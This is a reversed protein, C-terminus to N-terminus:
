LILLNRDTLSMFSKVKGNILAVTDEIRIGYEGAVYVGPEDSFVMGDTLTMAGKISLSPMEHINLGIGHGLSHTFLEGYGNEALYNRAIADAEIGTMGSVLQEKVLEHAKLVTAYAKKFEEHKGDDGFLFTRTIDSCYGNVKCGFDILIEDGFCLKTNGTEHHPVAAHAGFAVITAFSTGDAGFKRMQYELLAAVEAETMGEQILPLIALFAKEAIACAKEINELEWENKTIMVEVFQKDINVMKVGAKELAAYEAHSMHNFSVGVSEYGALREMIEAQKILAPTVDTGKLLKEAAEMYRMDTYLTTGNKDVIASGNEPDLGTLYRLQFLCTTYVAECGCADFVKKGNTMIM